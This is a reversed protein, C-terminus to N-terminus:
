LYSVLHDPQKQNTEERAHVFESFLQICHSILNVINRKLLYFFFSDFTYSILPSNTLAISSIIRRKRRLRRLAAKVIWSNEWNNWKMLALINLQSTDGAPSAYQLVANPTLYFKRMLNHNTSIKKNINMSKYRLNTTQWNLSWVRNSIRWVHASCWPRSNAASHWISRMCCAM